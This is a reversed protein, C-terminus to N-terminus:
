SNLLERNCLLQCVVAAWSNLLERNCLLACKVATCLFLLVCVCAAVSIM